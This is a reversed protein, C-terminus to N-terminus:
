LAECFLNITSLFCETVNVIFMEGETSAVNATRAEEPTHTLRLILVTIHFDRNDSDQVNSRKKELPFFEHHELSIGAFAVIFCRPLFLNQNQWFISIFDSPNSDNQPDNISRTAEAVVAEETSQAMREKTIARSYTDVDNRRKVTINSSLLIFLNM